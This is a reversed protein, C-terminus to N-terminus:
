KKLKELFAKLDKHSHSLEGNIIIVPSKVNMDAGKEKIVKWMLKMNEKGDSLDIIKFDFDNTVLYNTVTRCRSCGEDDFVVIGENIKSVDKLYHDKKNYAAIKKDTKSPVKKFGYSLKYKYFDYEFTLKIFLVNSKAPVVKVIPKTYGKLLKIDKITLTIELDEDTNNYGTIALANPEKDVKFEIKKTQTWGQTFVCLLIVLAISKKMM